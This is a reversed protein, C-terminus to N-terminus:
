LLIQAAVDEEIVLEELIGKKKLMEATDNKKDGPLTIIKDALLIAELLNFLDFLSYMNLGLNESLISDAFYLQSNSILWTNPEILPM